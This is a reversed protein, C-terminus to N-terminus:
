SFYLLAFSVHSHPNDALTSMMLNCIHFALPIFVPIRQSHVYVMIHSAFPSSQSSVSGYERLAILCYFYPHPTMPYRGM